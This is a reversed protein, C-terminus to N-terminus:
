MKQQRYSKKLGMDLSDMVDGDDGNVAGSFDGGEVAPIELLPIRRGDGPPLIRRGSADVSSRLPVSSRQNRFFTWPPDM